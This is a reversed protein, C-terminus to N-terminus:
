TMESYRQILVSISVNEGSPGTIFIDFDKDFPGPVSVSGGAPIPEGENRVKAATSDTKNTSFYVLFDDTDIISHLNKIKISQARSIYKGLRLVTGDSITFRRTIYDNPFRSREGVILVQTPKENVKQEDM